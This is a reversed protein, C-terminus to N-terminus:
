KQGESGSSGTSRQGRALKALEALIRRHEILGTMRGEEDLVPVPGGHNRLAAALVAPLNASGPVSQMAASPISSIPEFYATRLYSALEEGRANPHSHFSPHSTLNDLIPRLGLGNAMLGDQNQLFLMPRPGARNSKIMESLLWLAERIQHDMGFRLFRRNAMDAAITWQTESHSNGDPANQRREEAVLSRARAL